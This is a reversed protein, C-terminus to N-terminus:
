FKDDGFCFKKNLVASVERIFRREMKGWRLEYCGWDEMTWALDKTDEKILSKRKSEPIKNAGDKFYVCYGIMGWECWKGERVKTWDDDDNRM